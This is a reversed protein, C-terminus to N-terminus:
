EIEEWNGKRYAAWVPNSQIREAKLYSQLKSFYTEPDPSDFTKNIKLYHNYFRNDQTPQKSLFRDKAFGMELFMRLMVTHDMLNIIENTFKQDEESDFTDQFVRPYGLTVLKLHLLEHCLAEKERGSNTQLLIVPSCTLEDIVPDYKFSLLYSSCTLSDGPIIAIHCLSAEVENLLEIGPKCNELISRM